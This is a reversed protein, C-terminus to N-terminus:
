ANELLFRAKGAQPLDAFDAAISEFVRRAAADDGRERLALGLALWAQALAGRGDASAAVPVRRLLAEAGAPEGLDCWRRAQAAAERWPLALAPHAALVDAQQRAVVVDSAPLRVLDCARVERMAADSGNQAVRYRSLAIDFRGPREADLQALLADAEALRMQGLLEMAQERRRDQASEADPVDRIFDTRVQSTAVLVGGLLAGCVLGGAHADFGIGLEPRAFLHYVEWGLWVPLLWIAPARVYDFLVGFWYFFRVPERGWIVCFAGMLTAIAGSAGLGGGAEGWRWALSAASSGFAGLVYVLGFRLPGLAGEVLLGLAALFLMNGALHALGGHLFASAFMRWADVESCRLVHRLTFVDQKAAEYAPRARRWSEFDAGREFLEGRELRAVFAVDTLTRAAVWTGRQAEPLAELEALEENRGVERLHRAYAPVELAALGSARHIEDARRMAAGDRAQLGFFVFVNALMLLATVFPFTKVNLPRHLPLILM